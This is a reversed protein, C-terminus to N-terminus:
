RGIMNEEGINGSQEPEKLMLPGIEIIKKISPRWIIAKKAKMYILVEDGVLAHDFFPQDKLKSLDGVAALTPVEGEPLVYASGVENIVRSLEDAGAIPSTVELEKVRNEYRYLMTSLAIVACLLIAITVTHSSVWSKPANQQPRVLQVQLPKNRNWFM